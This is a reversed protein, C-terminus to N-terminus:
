GSSVVKDRGSAKAAALANEASRVIDGLSGCASTRSAVGLSISVDLQLGKVAFPADRVKKRAQEALKAATERGVNPLTVAIEDASYRAILTGQKLGNRVRQALVRLVDNRIGEGREDLIRQLGDISLMILNFNRDGDICHRLEKEAADLFYSKNRIGTLEDTYAQSDSDSSKHMKEKSTEVMRRAAEKVKHTAENVSGVSALIQKSGQGQEEMARLISDEQTAVTKVGGEIASFKGMAGDTSQNIKAISEKISSLVGKITASQATSSEALKRIESAVVAFGKGSEGARAAEIAANMSLLNTQGAINEMVANIELLSESERSIERVDAAVDGLGRHGAVSSDQLDKVNQTNKALTDTVSQINAIMQETAASSAAVSAAQDEIHENLQELMAQMKEQVVREKERERYYDRLDRSYLFLHDKGDVSIRHVIEEVPIPSGDSHLYTWEFRVSGERMAKAAMEANKRISDSGDPQTKPFFRGLNKIFVSKDPIGFMNEVEKNVELINGNEDYHACVMPSSDLIAQMKERVAEEKKEMAGAHEEISSVLKGFEELTRNFYGSAEAIEDSGIVPLKKTLDAKGHAIDRLNSTLLNLPNLLKRAYLFMAAAALALGAIGIFIMNRQQARTAAVTRQNSFAVFFMGIPAGAVNHVPFVYVHHPEGDLPMLDQFIENRELVAQAIRPDAEGGIARAGGPGRITTAVAETGTYIAVHADFVDAFRDVFADENMIIRAIFVGIQEGGSMIPTYTSLSMRIVLAGIGFATVTEGAIAARVNASGLAMNDGYVDPLNTRIICYGDNDLVLLNGAGIELRRGELYALLAVRDVAGTAAYAIVVGAIAESQAVLQAALASNDALEELRLHTAQSIMSAREEALRDTLRRVSVSTYVVVLALVLMMVGISPVLIKSKFRKFM